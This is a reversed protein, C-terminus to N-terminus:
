TRGKTMMDWWEDTGQEPNDEDLIPPHNENYDKLYADWEEQTM